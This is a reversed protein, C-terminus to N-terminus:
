EMTMLIEMNGSVSHANKVATILINDGVKVDHGDVTGSGKTVTAVAYGDMPIDAEGNVRWRCVTFSETRMFVTVEAGGYKVTEPEFIGNADGYHLCEVAQETQLARGKGNEDLRDYDYFRFTVDVAQQIEYVVAGRRMAHLTGAPIYVAEGEKIDLHKILDYWKKENIYKELEARDAANHNYVINYDEPTKIFYWAENKGGSFGMKVGTDEDPHVQISLDDVPGVLSIIFPFKDYKSNFLEPSNEFLSLLTEGEFGGLARNADEGLANFAWCQGVKDPFFDYGFYNKVVDGGWLTIKPVPRFFIIEKSM